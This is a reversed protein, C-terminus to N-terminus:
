WGAERDLLVRLGKALIWVLGFGAVFVLWGSFSHYFGMAYEENYEALFATGTVRVVNVAIALPISLAILLVRSRLRRCETFGLVLSVVVLSALSHLGSCAEAVGLTTNPLQLINGEQYISKGFFQVVTAATQSALLQLPVAIKNYLITPLPIMTTLLILPFGLTRTRALGWFTWALGTILVVFSFRTVFFEAALKGVLFVVCAAVIVLLGRRDSSAPTALTRARRAYAIYLALPPVLFGYSAGPDNLWDSALSRLTSAYLALTLGAVLAVGMWRSLLQKTSDEPEVRPTGPNTGDPRRTITSHIGTTELVRM